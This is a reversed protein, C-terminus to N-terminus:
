SPYPMEPVRGRLRSYVTLAGRHHATHDLVAGVIIRRPVAGFLSHEPLLAELDEDSSVELTACARDFAETLWTRAATLSEIAAVEAMLKEFDMDFGEPRFAGDFFWDVTQAVHAVQQATTMLEDQPRFGSDEELLCASSRDFYDKAARLEQIYHESNPTM